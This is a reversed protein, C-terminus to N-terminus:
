VKVENQIIRAWVLQERIPRTKMKLLKIRKKEEKKIKQDKMKKM